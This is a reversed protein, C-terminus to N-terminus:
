LVSWLNAQSLLWWEDLGAIVMMLRSGQIGKPTVFWKGALPPRTSGISLTSLKHCHQCSTVVLLRNSVIIVLKVNHLVAPRGTASHCQCIPPAPFRTDSLLGWDTGTTQYDVQHHYRSHHHPRPNNDHYLHRHHHHCALLWYWGTKKLSMRDM